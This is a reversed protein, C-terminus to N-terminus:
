SGRPRPGLYEEQLWAGLDLEQIIIDVVSGYHKGLVKLPEREPHDILAGHQKLEAGVRSESEREREREREREYVCSM